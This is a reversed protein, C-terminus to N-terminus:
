NLLGFKRKIAFKVKYRKPLKDYLNEFFKEILSEDYTPKNYFQHAYIVNDKDYVEVQNIFNTSYERHYEVNLGLKMFAKKTKLIRDLLSWNLKYMVVQNDNISSEVDKILNNLVIAMSVRHNGDDHVFYRIDGNRTNYGVLHVPTNHNSKVGNEFYYNPNERLNMLLGNTRKGKFVVNVPSVGQYDIHRTGVIDNINIIKNNYNFCNSYHKEIEYPYPCFKKFDTSNTNKHLLNKVEDLNTCKNLSELFAKYEM